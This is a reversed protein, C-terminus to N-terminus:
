VHRKVTPMTAGCYPCKVTLPGAWEANEVSLAAGCSKCYNPPEHIYSSEDSEDSAQISGLLGMGAGDVSKLILPMGIVIGIIPVVFIWFLIMGVGMDGAELGMIMMIFGGIFFLMMIGIGAWMKTVDAM